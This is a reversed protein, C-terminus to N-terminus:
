FPCLYVRKTLKSFPGLLIFVTKDRIIGFATMEPGMRKGSLWVQTDLQRRSLRGM